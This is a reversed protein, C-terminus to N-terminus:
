TTLDLYELQIFSKTKNIRYINSLFSWFDNLRCIQEKLKKEANRSKIDM